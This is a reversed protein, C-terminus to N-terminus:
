SRRSNRRPHRRGTRSLFSGRRSGRHGGKRPTTGVPSSGRGSRHFLWRWLWRFELITNKNLFLRIPWGWQCFYLHKNNNENSILKPDEFIELFRVKHKLSLYSLTSTCRRCQKENDKLFEFFEENKYAPNRDWKERKGYDRRFIYRLLLTSIRM